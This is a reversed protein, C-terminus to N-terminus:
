KASIPVWGGHDRLRWKEGALTVTAAGRQRRGNLDAEFVVVATASETSGGLVKCRQPVSKNNDRRLAWDRDVMQRASLAQDSQRNRQAV